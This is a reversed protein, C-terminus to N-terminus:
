DHLRDARLLLVTTRGQERSVGLVVAGAKPLLLSCQAGDDRLGRYVDLPGWHTALTEIVPRSRRMVSVELALQDAGEAAGLVSLRVGSSLTAVIPDAAIGIAGEVGGSSHEIDAVLREEHYLGLQVRQGSRGSVLLRDEITSALLGHLDDPGLIGGAAWPADSATRVRLLEYQLVPRQQVLGRLIQGVRAQAQADGRAWLFAGRAGLANIDFDFDHCSELILDRAVDASFDEPEEDQFGFSGGFELVDRTRDDDLYPLADPWSRDRTTDLLPQCSHSRLLFGDAPPPPSAPGRVSCTVVLVEGGLAAGVEPSAAGGVVLVDGPRARFTGALRLLHLRPLQLDGCGPFDLVRAEGARALELELELEVLDSGSLFAAGATASVGELLPQTVPNLVPTIGTQNVEYDAVLASRQLDRASVRQGDHMTLQLDAVVKPSLQSLHRQAADRLPRGAGSALLDAAEASTLGLVQVRLTVARQRQARLDDLLALQAALVEPRQRLVLTSGEFRISADEHSPFREAVEHLLIFLLDSDLESGGLREDVFSLVGGGAGGSYNTPEQLSLRVTEPQPYPEILSRVDVLRTELDDSQALVPPCLLAAVALPALCIRRLM